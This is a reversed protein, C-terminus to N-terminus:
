LNHRELWNLGKDTIEWINQDELDSIRTFNAFGINILTTLIPRAEQTFHIQERPKLRLERLIVAAKPITIDAM